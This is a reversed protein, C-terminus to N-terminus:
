GGQTWLPRLQTAVVQEYAVPGSLLRLDQTFQVTRAFAEESVSADFFPADRAMLEAILGAEEAPFLRQLDRDPVAPRWRAYSRQKEAYHEGLTMRVSSLPEVTRRLGRVIDSEPIGAVACALDGDLCAM